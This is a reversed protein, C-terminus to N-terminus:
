LWIALLSEALIDALLDDGEGDPPDDGLPRLDYEGTAARQLTGASSATSIPQPAAIRNVILLSHILLDTTPAPTATAPSDNDTDPARAIIASRIAADPDNEADMEISPAPGVTQVYYTQADVVTGLRNVFRFNIASPSADVLMAGFDDNYRAESGDAITYFNYSSSGGLGNVFYTIGEANIREYTHDHGSLVFDAGWDAYAWQMLTNSGHYSSSYPPDHMYVIRWPATSVALQAQLWNQQATMEAPASLAATSDLVFFHLPGQIFDYYRETGSAGNTDVGAGPLTFYDLYETLGWGDFYDHNGLSPFFANTPSSGGACYPGVGADTLYSCYYRGVVEDFTAFQYRNDGTTVIFDPDLNAVLDAVDAEDQSGLGYDGIVAFRVAGGLPLGPFIPDPVSDGFAGRMISFDTLDVRGSGDLDTARVGVVGSLGFESVLTGYDGADVDGDGDGDGVTNGLYFVDEDELNTNANAKVTVKVWQNRIARDAWIITVRDAGSVGADHRVTVSTPAPAVTWNNPDAVSNIQFDFDLATVTGPLEDIDVMLGNIGRSYGTRHEPGITGGPLLPAKDPAIAADDSDGPSASGDWTSNNYFVRRAVVQSKQPNADLKVNESGITVQSSFAGGFAGGSISVDYVGAPLQLQYGGSGWSTTSHTVPGVATVTVGAIGEGGNFKGDSDADTWITGVLYPDGATRPKGFDQTVVHPGVETSPNDESIAAIGVHVWKTDMINERHGPPNQMGDIGNGWDVVFGAHGHLASKAYAYINEALNMWDYGTADVREGLGPGFPFVHKQDDENIMTQSHFEAADDLLPSWAVPATATLTSWDSQLTAGVVNFYTLANQIDSDSSSAPAGYGTMFHDLHDGPDTRMDNILWLMEQEFPSPSASLLLRPELLELIPLGASESVPQSM